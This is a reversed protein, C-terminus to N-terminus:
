TQRGRSATARLATVGMASAFLLLAGPLPVVAFTVPQPTPVWNNGGVGDRGISASIPTGALEITLDMICTLGALNACSFDFM